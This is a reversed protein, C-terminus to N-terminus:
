QPEINQDSDSHTPHAGPYQRPLEQHLQRTEYTFRTTTSHQGKEWGTAKGLKEENTAAGFPGEPFEEQLIENRQSQVTSLESYDEASDKIKKYYSM